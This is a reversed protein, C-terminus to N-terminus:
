KNSVNLGVIVSMKISGQFTQSFAIMPLLLLLLLIKNKM